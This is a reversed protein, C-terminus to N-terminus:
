GNGAQDDRFEPGTGYLMDYTGRNRQDVRTVEGTIPNTQEVLDYEYTIFGSIDDHLKRGKRQITHIRATRYRPRVPM